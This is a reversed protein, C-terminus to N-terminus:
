EPERLLPTGTPPPAIPPPEPEPAPDQTHGEPDPPPAEAVPEPPPPAEAPRSFLDGAIGGRIVTPVSTEARRSKTKPPPISAMTENSVEPEAPPGALALISPSIEFLPPMDAVSSKGAAERPLPFALAVLPTSSAPESPIEAVVPAGVVIMSPSVKVEISPLTVFSSAQAAGPLCAGIWILAACVRM